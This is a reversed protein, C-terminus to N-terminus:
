ECSKSNMNRHHEAGRTLMEALELADTCTLVFRNSKDGDKTELEIGEVNVRLTLNVDLDSVYFYELDSQM